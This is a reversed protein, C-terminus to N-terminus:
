SMSYPCKAKGKCFRCNSKTPKYSSAAITEGREYMSALDYVNAVKTTLYKQWHRIGEPTIYYTDPVGQFITLAVKKIPVLWELRSLAGIAYTLLQPNNDAAVPSNGAKLDNVHLVADPTWVVADGLGMIAKPEHVGLAYSLDFKMEVYLRGGLGQIYDVYAKTTGVAKKDFVVSGAFVEGLASEVTARQGLLVQEAVLHQATGYKASQSQTFPADQSLVASMACALTEKLASPKILRRAM